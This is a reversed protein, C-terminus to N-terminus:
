NPNESVHSTSGGGDLPASSQCSLQAHAQLIPAGGKSFTLGVSSSSMNEPSSIKTLFSERSSEITIENRLDSSSPLALTGMSTGVPDPAVPMDSLSSASPTYSLMGM